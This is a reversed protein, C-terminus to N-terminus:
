KVSIMKDIRANEAKLRKIESILKDREAVVLALDDYLQVTGAYKTVIKKGDRYRFYCYKRGNSERFVLTGRPYEQLKDECELLKTEDKQKEKKLVADIQFEIKEM